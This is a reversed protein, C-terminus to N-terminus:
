DTGVQSGSAEGSSHHALMWEAVGIRAIKEFPVRYFAQVAAPHKPLQVYGQVGWGKVETVILLCAGFVPDHEPDIQVVDGVSIGQNEM